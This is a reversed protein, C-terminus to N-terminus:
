TFCCFRGTVDVADEDLVAIDWAAGDEGLRNARPGEFLRIESGLLGPMVVEGAATDYRLTYLPNFLRRDM